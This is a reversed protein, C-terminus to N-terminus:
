FGRRIQAPDYVLMMNYGQEKTLKMVDEYCGDSSIMVVTGPRRNVKADDDKTTEPLNKLKSDATGKKESAYRYKIKGEKLLPILEKKLLQRSGVIAHVRVNGSYGHNELFFVEYALRSSSCQRENCESSNEKDFLVMLLSLLSGSIIGKAIERAM